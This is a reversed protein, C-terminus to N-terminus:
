VAVNRGPGGGVVARGAVRDSTPTPSAIDGYELGDLRELWTDLMRKAAAIVQANVM